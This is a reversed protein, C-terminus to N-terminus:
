RTVLINRNKQLYAIGSYVTLGVMVPVLVHTGFRWAQTSWPVAVLEKLSLLALFYIITIMQWTTKHKGLKEAPLVIGKTLALSRLGTILFERSIILILAWAPMANFEALSIFAAATLIKDALPDMLKGFDTILNGRRAIEGDLYDTLAAVLFIGLAVSFCGPFPLAFCVVFVITLFLRAVTLKNPLNM